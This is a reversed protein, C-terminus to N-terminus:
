GISMPFLSWFTFLFLVYTVVIKKDDLKYFYYILGIVLMTVLIKLLQFYLFMNDVM